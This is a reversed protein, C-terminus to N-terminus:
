NIHERPTSTRRTVESHQRTQLDPLELAPSPRNSNSTNPTRVMSAEGNEPVEEQAADEHPAENGRSQNLTPSSVHTQDVTRYLSQNAAHQRVLDNVEKTLKAMEGQMTSIMDMLISIKRIVPPAHLHTFAVQEPQHAGPRAPPEAEPDEVTENIIIENDEPNQTSNQSTSLTDNVRNANLLTNTEEVFTKFINEAMKKFCRETWLTHGPGSACISMITTDIRLFCKNKNLYSKLQFTKRGESPFRFQKSLVTLISNFIPKNYFLISTTDQLPMMHYFIGQFPDSSNYDTELDGATFGPFDKVTLSDTNVMSSGASYVSNVSDEM